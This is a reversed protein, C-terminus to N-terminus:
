EEIGSKANTVNEFLIPASEGRAHQKRRLAHMCAHHSRQMEKQMSIRCYVIHRGIDNNNIKEKKIYIQNTMTIM